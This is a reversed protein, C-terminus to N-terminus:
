VVSKRDRLHLAASVLPVPRAFTAPNLHLEQEILARSQFRALFPLGDRALEAVVPAAATEPEGVMPWWMDHQRVEAGLRGRAAAARGPGIPARFCNDAPLSDLLLLDDLDVLLDIAFHGYTPTPHSPYHRGTVVAITLVLGQEPERQFTSGKRRFGEPRVVRNVASLVPRMFDTSNFRGARREASLIEATQRMTSWFTESEDRRLGAEELLAAVDENSLGLAGAIENPSRGEGVLRWAYGSMDDMAVLIAQAFGTTEVMPPVRSDEHGAPLSEQWVGPRTPWAPPPMPRGLPLAVPQCYRGPAAAVRDVYEPM